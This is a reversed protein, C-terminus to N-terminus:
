KPQRKPGYRRVVTVLLSLLLASLCWSALVDLPWHYGRRVLGYSVALVLLACVLALARRTRPTP